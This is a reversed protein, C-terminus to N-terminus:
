GVVNFHFHVGRQVAQQGIFVPFFRGEANMMIFHRLDQFGSKEVAKIANTENAYTKTTEIKFRGNM